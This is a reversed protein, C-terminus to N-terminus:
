AAMVVFGLGLVQFFSYFGLHYAVKSSNERTIAGLWWKLWLGICVMNAVVTDVYYNPTVNSTFTTFFSQSGLLVLFIVGRLLGISKLYTISGKSQHTRM